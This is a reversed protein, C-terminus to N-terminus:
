GCFAAREIGLYRCFGSVDRAFQHHNMASRGGPNDTLGRGRLDPVLLHYDTGLADLQENWSIRGTHTFGHLLV